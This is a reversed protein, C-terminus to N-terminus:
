SWSNSTKDIGYELPNEFCLSRLETARNENEIIEIDNQSLDQTNTIKTIIKINENNKQHKLYERGNESFALVRAYGIDDKLKRGQMDMLIYLMIRRIRSLPYRKTKMFELFDDISFAARTAKIIRGELGETVEPLTSATQMDLSRLKYLLIQELHKVDAFQESLELINKPIYKEFESNGSLILERIRKASATNETVDDSNHQVDNRKLTIFDISSNLRKAAKIYEVGLINNPQEVIKAYEKNVKYLAQSRAKAYTVGSKLQEKISVSDNLLLEGIDSLIDTDGCESGFSLFDINLKHCLTVAGLAFREASATSFDFPLEFVIDAGSIVASKARQWKSFVSPECRQTFSGSLIVAIFDSGTRKRSFDLHLKHGNHFPNYEAVIATTKM